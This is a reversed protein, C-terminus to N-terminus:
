GLRSLCVEADGRVCPERLAQYTARRRPIAAGEDHELLRVVREADGSRGHGVVDDGVNLHTASFAGTKLLPHVKSQAPIVGYDEHRQSRVRGIAIADLVAARCEDVLPM